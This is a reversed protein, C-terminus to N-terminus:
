HLVWRPDPDSLRSSASEHALLLYVGLDMAERVENALTDSEAGRTWTQANLYLLMHDCESLETLQGTATLMSDMAPTAKARLWHRSGGTLSPRRSAREKSFVMKLSRGNALETMLEVAGQANAIGAATGRVASM